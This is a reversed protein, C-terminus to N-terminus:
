EGKQFFWVENHRKGLSFPSDYGATAYQNTDFGDLGHYQLLGLLRQLQPRIDEAFSRVYGPYSLTAVRAAPQKDVYVSADTPAPPDAQDAFPVFFSVRFTTNCTPGAGPVVRVQVPAAMKVKVSGANAGSIYRFLRKFGTDVADEYASDSAGTVNTSVWAAQM